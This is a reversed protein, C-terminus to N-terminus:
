QNEGKEYSAEFDKVVALIDALSKDMMDPAIFADDSIDEPGSLLANIEDLSLLDDPMHQNEGKEYSAEFDKVVALIDALSKDMMDPTTFTDDSIDEPGSLLANIEDPSLLDDPM